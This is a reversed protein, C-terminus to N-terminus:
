AFIIFYNGDKPGLVGNTGSTQLAVGMNGMNIEMERWKEVASERDKTYKKTIVVFHRQIRM